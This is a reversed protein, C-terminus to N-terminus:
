NEQLNNRILLMHETTCYNTEEPNLRHRRNQSLIHEKNMMLQIWVHCNFCNM